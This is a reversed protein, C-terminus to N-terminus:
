YARSREFIGARRLLQSFFGADALWQTLCTWSSLFATLWGQGSTNVAVFLWAQASRVALGLTDKLTM